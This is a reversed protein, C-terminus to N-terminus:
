SPNKNELGILTEKILNWEKQYLFQFDKNRPLDLKEFPSIHLIENKIKVLSLLAEFGPLNNNWNIETNEFDNFSLDKKYGALSNKIEVKLQEIENWAEIQREFKEREGPILLRLKAEPIMSLLVFIICAFGFTYSKKIRPTKFLPSSGSSSNPLNQTISVINFKEDEAEKLREIEVENKLANILKEDSSDIPENRLIKLLKRM